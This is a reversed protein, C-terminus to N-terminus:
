LGFCACCNERRNQRRQFPRRRAFFEQAQGLGGFDRGTSVGDTRQKTFWGDTRLNCFPKQRSAGLEIRRLHARQEGIRGFFQQRSVSFRLGKTKGKDASELQGRQLCFENLEGLLGLVHGREAGSEM